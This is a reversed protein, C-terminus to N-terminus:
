AAVDLLWIGSYAMGAVFAAFDAYTCAFIALPAAALRAGRLHFILFAAFLVQTWVLLPVLLALLSLGTDGRIMGATLSAVVILTQSVAPVALFLLLGARRKILGLVAGFLLCVTGFAPVASLAGASFPAALASFYWDPVAFFLGM